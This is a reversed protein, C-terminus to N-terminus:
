GWMERAKILSRKLDGQKGSFVKLTVTDDYKLKKLEAFIRAFNLMGSGIAHHDALLGGQKVIDHLHVHRLKKGAAQLFKIIGEKDRTNLFAHGVDVNAYLGKAQKLIVSFQQPNEWSNEYVIIMGHKKAERILEQFSKVLMHMHRKDAFEASGHKEHVGIVYGHVVLKQVELAECMNIIKKIENLWALRITEGVSGIDAFWPAHASIAPINYKKLAAHIKAVNRKILMPHAKHDAFTIEAYDFGLNKIRGIDKATDIGPSTPNGFLM